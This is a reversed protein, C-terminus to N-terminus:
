LVGIIKTEFLLTQGALPHNFDFVYGHADMERLIGAFRGGSPATFDVLDGIVYQEGFASNEKLTEASVRQILEPNREGFAKEPSLEQTSHTGEALGLLAAELEPALQGGGMQLTAPSDNFTSIIDEGNLTALRYHLTLYANPTVVPIAPITM